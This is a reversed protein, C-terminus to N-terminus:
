SVLLCVLKKEAAILHRLGLVFFALSREKQFSRPIIEPEALCDQAFHQAGDRARMPLADATRAAHVFATTPRPSVFAVNCCM